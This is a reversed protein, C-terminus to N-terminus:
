VEMTAPNQAPPNPNVGQAPAAGQAPAPPQGQVPTMQTATYNGQQMVTGQGATVTTMPAGTTYVAPQTSYVTGCRTSSTACAAVLCWIFLGLFVLGLVAWIAIAWGTSYWYYDCCYYNPYVGCVDDCDYGDIWASALMPMTLAIIQALSVM